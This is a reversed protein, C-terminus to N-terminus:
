SLIDCPLAEEDALEQRKQRIIEEANNYERLILDTSNVIMFMLNHQLFHNRQVNELTLTNGIKKVQAICQVIIQKYYCEISESALIKRIIKDGKQMKEVIEKLQAENCNKQVKDETKVLMSLHTNASKQINKLLKIERKLVKDLKDYQKIKEKLSVMKPKLCEALRQEIPRTCYTDIADKLKMRIAGDIRAGGETANIVKINSNILIQFEYWEKFIKYVIHSKLLNGDEDELYIGTSDRDDNAGEYETHTLESHKKGSTYALDQGVLIIPNCGADRALAFAVTACSHGVSGFKFHDFVEEWITEFGVDNRAMIIKEGPFEEYINPWLSGPAVLVLDDPFTRNKYYYTYTPEDREISAIADPRVDNKECARMSADTAIILAKGNAKKLHQINKDLSPGAAIIFAPYNKYKGRIEDLSHSQTIATTNHCMNAFGVFQDDLSNGFAIVTNYLVKTINRLASQNQRAYVYYNPLVLVQMNQILNYFKLGALFLTMKAIQQEDGYLLVFQNSDFVESFDIHHLAYKLVDLNHEVIIVRSEPSITKKLEFLHHGLGIGFSIILYDRNPKITQILRQAETKPNYRSHLLYRKNEHVFFFEPNEATKTKTVVGNGITMFDTTLLEQALFLNSQALSKLNKQLFKSTMLQERKALLSFFLKILFPWPSGGRAGYIILM